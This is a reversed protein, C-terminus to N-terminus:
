GAPPLLVGPNLLDHPDLAQKIARMATIDAASRTLPLWDRKATGIGHEAGVSGGLEAVLRLVADDVRADAPDLGLVNVHLNGVGLHGFVVCRAAPAFSAVLPAVGAVFTALQDLPLAVDLKHPVGAAAIADALQERYTWLRRRDDPAVALAVDAVELSQLAAGLKTEADSGAVEVLVYAPWQADLPVRVAAHECVLALGDAYFVELADLEPLARMGAAVRLAAATDEVGILATARENQAPVLRLAARTVIGLTGESGALLGALDYGGNDHAPAGLRSVVSGDALVAEVGLLQARMTGYRIVRTGGANTAIM